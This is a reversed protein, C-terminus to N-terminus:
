ANGGDADQSALYTSNAFGGDVELIQGTLATTRVTELLRVFFKVWPETLYNASNIHRIKTPLPPINDAM